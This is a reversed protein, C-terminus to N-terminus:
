QQEIFCHREYGSLQKLKKGNLFPRASEHLNNKKKVNVLETPFIDLTVTPGVNGGHLVSDNEKKINGNSPYFYFLLGVLVVAPFTWNRVKRACLNWYATLLNTTYGMVYM